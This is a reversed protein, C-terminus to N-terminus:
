PLRFRIKITGTVNQTTVITTTTSSPDATNTGGGTTGPATTTTATNETASTQSEGATSAVDAVASAAAGAVTETSAAPEAPAEEAVAVVETPAAEQVRQAVSAAQFDQRAQRFRPDRRVAEGFFAAAASYDGLDEAILGRSYALFAALNQTGNELILRREAESLVYGLQGAIAVVIAKEMRLLDRLRGSEMAPSTVRGDSQVVTVELRVDEEDPIAALGQVMQGAQLLRGVRAATAVDVRGTEVLQMEQVLANVQLREM